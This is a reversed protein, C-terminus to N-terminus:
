PNMEVESEDVEFINDLDDVLIIKNNMDINILCIKLIFFIEPCGFDLIKYFNYHLCLVILNKSKKISPIIKSSM